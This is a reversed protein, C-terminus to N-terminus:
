LSAGSQAEQTSPTFAHEVVVWCSYINKFRNFFFISPKLARSFFMNKSIICIVVIKRLAKPCFQGFIYLFKCLKQSLM